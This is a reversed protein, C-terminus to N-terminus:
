ILIYKKIPGIVDDDDIIMSLSSPFEWVRGVLLPRWVLVLLGMTVRCYVTVFCQDVEMGNPPCSVM